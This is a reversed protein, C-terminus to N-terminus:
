ADTVAVPGRRSPIADSPSSIPGVGDATVVASEDNTLLPRNADSSDPLAVGGRRGDYPLAVVATTGAPTYNGLRRKPHRLRVNDGAPLNMPSEVALVTGRRDAQEVTGDVEASGGQDEAYSEVEGTGAEGYYDSASDYMRPAASALMEMRGRATEIAQSEALMLQPNAPPYPIAADPEM